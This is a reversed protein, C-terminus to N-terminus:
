AGPEATHPGAHGNAAFRQEVATWFPVGHRTLLRARGSEVLVRRAAAADAPSCRALTQALQAESMPHRTIIALLADALSAHGSLDFLTGSPPVVQATEGLAAGLIATPLSCASLLLLCGLAAVPRVCRVYRGWARPALLRDFVASPLGSEGTNM